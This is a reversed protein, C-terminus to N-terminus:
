GFCRPLERGKVVKRKEGGVQRGKFVVRDEQGRDRPFYIDGKRGMEDELLEFKVNKFEGEVVNWCYPYCESIDRKMIKRKGQLEKTMTQNDKREVRVHSCIMKAKKGEGMLRRTSRWEILAFKRGEWLVKRWRNGGEFTKPLFKWPKKEICVAGM